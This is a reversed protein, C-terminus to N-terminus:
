INNLRLVGFTKNNKIIFDINININSQIIENNVIYITSITNIKNTLFDIICNKNTFTTEIYTNNKLLIKIFGFTYYNMLSDYKIELNFTINGYNVDNNWLETTYIKFSNKSYDQILNFIDDKFILDNISYYLELNNFM